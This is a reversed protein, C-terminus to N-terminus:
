NKKEFKELAAQREPSNVATLCAEIEYKMIEDLKMGQSALSLGRKMLQISLSSNQVIEQAIKEVRDLLEDQPFCDNVLGLRKAEEASIFNGRFLLEKARACGILQHLLFFAGGTASSVVKAEPLSLSAESGAFRLDCALAIEFGSGIAYGNIAAITPKSFEILKKSTKQLRDLYSGYEEASRQKSEKLDAGSSFARGNGSLVLAKIQQDEAIADLVQDLEKWLRQNMANLVEPRNLFIWTVDDRDKRQLTEFERAM